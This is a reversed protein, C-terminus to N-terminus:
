GEIVRLPRKHDPQLPKGTWKEVQVNCSNWGQHGEGTPIAGCLINTCGGRDLGLEDDWDIWAGQGMGVVGPRITEYIAVRTLVKGHRSRIVVTDGNRLGREAADLPNMMALNPFAEQLWRTNDFNSHARRPVHLNLLQLPYEGKVKKDWDSFTDEYGETPPTYAPIPRIKSFGVAEIKDALTQCHIEIKGSPSALPHERPDDVFDKLVIHGFKDGPKRPFHYIGKEKFEWFGIRGQQPTGVVGLKDIDAQTITVLPEYTTGDDSIVRAAAVQNFIDQKSSYPQVVDPDVGLRVALERAVWIDDKSEFLPEIAQSTWLLSDRFSTSVEGFREWRSTIPLVLDSFACHPTMFMDQSAVFEVKRFAQIGKVAGPIQNLRSAKGFYMMQINIDRVDDKGATYKGTLVADWLENRNVAIRVPNVVRPRDPFDSPRGIWTGGKVLEPGEMLWAHGADSGVCNGPTGFHGTMAGLATIVQPWSQADNVRAPAPSMIVTVRQTTAILRALARIREPPVGCIEAAWEASKPQGDYTGLVYDKLNEKADAGAPMHDRDFGVTYKHLFEWNVLPSSVPDDEVLLTHMMGLVLAHDTAPRIPLWDDTSVGMAAATPHFFPDVVVFRAGAKKAQLLAYVPKGARSWAPNSAWLVILQANALDFGDNLDEGTGSRSRPLGIAPGTATWTGSSCSAWDTIFGGYLKLAREVETYTGTGTASSPMYVATNGYKGVVRKIESALIDLAEDWSIRVWGDRGRLEKEGGGPAWHKRKMPYKLRDPALIRNRQARGKACSRLQPCTPSDTITDDTGSRTIVGDVVYVKNFGKSGCDGWCAVPIWKGERLSKPAAEVRQLGFSVSQVSGLSVGLAASWQLFARRSVGAPGVPEGVSNKQAM